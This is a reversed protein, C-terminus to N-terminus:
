SAMVFAALSRSQSRTMMPVWPRVPTDRKKRPLTADRTAEVAGQGTIVM